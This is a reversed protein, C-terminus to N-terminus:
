PDRSYDYCQMDGVTTSSFVARCVEGQQAAVAAFSGHVWLHLCRRSWCFLLMEPQTDRTNTLEAGDPSGLVGRCRLSAGYDFEVASCPM